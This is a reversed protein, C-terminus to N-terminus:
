ADSLDELERKELRELRSEWRDKRVDESVPKPPPEPAAPSMLGYRLAAHSHGESHEWVQDVAEGPWRSLPSDVDEIPADRINSILTQMELTDTIFFRPSGPEGAKPHWEPFRRLSAQTGDPLERGDNLKLMELIRAYGARRDNQGRVFTIGHEGFETEPGMENGSVDRKGWRTGIDPPAYCRASELEGRDNRQWWGAERRRHIRRAQESILGAENDLGHCIVNGDHDVAFALWAGTNTGYDMSEFRRWWNSIRTSAPVIHVGQILRYALGEDLLLEAELEQRGLRTGEYKSILDSFWYPDLNARNEYSTGKTVVTMGPEVLVTGDPATIGADEVLERLLPVPKPTSTLLARPDPPLRLGLVANDWTDKMYPWKAFEDGWLRQHQPGRLQEPEEATFCLTQAGNPWDLRRLSKRYEPKEWPPCCAMIGSEGEIMVDRYEDRSKAILNVYKFNRVQERMWEAGIRTKGYGRGSLVVWIRWLGPPEIQGPRAWFPWRYLLEAKEQPTATELLKSRESDGLALLSDVTM